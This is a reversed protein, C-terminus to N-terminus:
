AFLKGLDRSITRNFINMYTNFTCVFCDWNREKNHLM